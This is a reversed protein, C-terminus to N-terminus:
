TRVMIKKIYELDQKDLGRILVISGFYVIISYFIILGLPLHLIFGLYTLCGMIGVAFLPKLTSYVLAKGYRRTKKLVCSIPAGLSYSIVTAIAAGTIGLHPILLLNLLINVIAGSSTFIFDLKQLGVSILINVHVLGLFVFIESWILIRLAPISGIFQEGYAIKIFPEALICIGVAVPMIITSMYRFSLEYTKELKEKSTVFYESFLPFVSTMFAAPIINFVEVLKVAAAYNGLAEAGKMQFLMLQDIRTYIMIFATTLAIPWSEKILRKCIVFDIKIKPRIFKRSLFLIIFLGPLNAIVGGIIFWLLTAKLFILYLFLGLKMLGDLIVVMIPYKMNINVQFIVVYLGSFSLLFSLSAIYILLRTNFPEHLFNIILCALIIALFSFIIRMMIANGILKDVNSKDRSLERVLIRSIGLDIVIGFFGLYAFIFSYIGFDKTGLYRGLLVNTILGIFIGLINGLIIVGTNGAVKGITKEM